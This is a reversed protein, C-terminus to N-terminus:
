DGINEIISRMEKAGFKLYQETVALTSHDLALQLKRVDEPAKMKKAVDVAYSHRFHHPHPKHKGVKDIGAIRCVRSIIQYARQRSIHGDKKFASKFLYDGPQLGTELVYRQLLGTTLIDIYSLSVKDFKVRERNGLEDKVTRTKKLVHISIAKLNFDIEHVKINLIESIRRGTIWLLRILVKDRFSDASNYILKRQGEKFYGQLDTM